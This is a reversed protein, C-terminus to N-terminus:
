VEVHKFGCCRGFGEGEIIYCWLLDINNKLRLGVYVSWCWLMIIWLCYSEKLASGFGLEAWMEDKESSLWYNVKKKQRGAVVWKLTSLLRCQEWHQNGPCPPPLAPPPRPPIRSPPPGHPSRVPPPRPPSRTPRNPPASTSPHILPRHEAPAPPPPPPSHLPASVAEDKVRTFNICRGQLCM